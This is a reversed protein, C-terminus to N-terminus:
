RLGDSEPGFLTKLEERSYGAQSFAQVANEERERIRARLSEMTFWEAPRTRIEHIREELRDEMFALFDETKGEETWRKVRESFRQRVSDELAVRHAHSGFGVHSSNETTATREVSETTTVPTTSILSESDSKCAFWVVGAIGVSLLAGLAAVARRKLSVKSNM